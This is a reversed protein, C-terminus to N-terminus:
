INRILFTGVNELIKKKDIFVYIICIVNHMNQIMFLKAHSNLSFTTM